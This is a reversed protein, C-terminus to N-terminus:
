TGKACLQRREEAFQSRGIYFYVKTDTMGFWYSHFIAFQLLSQSRSTGFKNLLLLSSMKKRNNNDVCCLVVCCLVVIISIRNNSQTYTDNVRERKEYGVWMVILIHQHISEFVICLSFTDDWCYEDNWQTSHTQHKSCVIWEISKHWCKEQLISLWILLTIYIQVLLHTCSEREWSLECHFLTHQNNILFILERERMCCWQLSQNYKFQSFTLVCESVSVCVWVWQISISIWSCVHPFTYLSFTLSINLISVTQNFITDCNINSNLQTSNLQTSL